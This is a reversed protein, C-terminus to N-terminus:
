YICAGLSSKTGKLWSYVLLQAPALLTVSKKWFMDEVARFRREEMMEEPLLRLCLSYLASFAASVRSCGGVMKGDTYQVVVNTM